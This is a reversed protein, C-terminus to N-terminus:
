KSRTLSFFPLASTKKYQHAESTDLLDDSPVKKPKRTTLDLYKISRHVQKGRSDFYVNRIMIYDGNFTRMETTVKAVMGDTRFYYSVYEAWDGSPSFKTFKSSVLRGKDRWNYAITYTEQKDRFKELEVVSKFTKWRAQKDYEAIDAVVIDPAKRREMLEDISKVYVDIQKVASRSGASQSSASLSFTVLLIVFLFLKM